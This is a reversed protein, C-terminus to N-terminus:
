YYFFIDDNQKKLKEFFLKKIDHKFTNVSRRLKTEAALNNWTNPGLYSITKQGLCSQRFPLNLKLTAMRTNYRSHSPHFIESMYQPSMKNFFKFINVCICQAVREKTPLWNIKIFEDIGVHARNDLNLCYRICKNQSTQIKKSLRKNLSPYWASCAYDYHPQILANCLLRRLSLTLFKQKRYLFKLRNNVLRLVKTAMSEGSLDNDLICGLYTVKSHQKIEIDGYRLDLDRQNKLQRKTGFLISKTKEEGFHVSLKNDVFWDCLSSFDTNLQEEITNIDKGTYILCTDDAYLLLDSNVAQPMDNVYLLFLLPGLISGQPVGCLLKGPSSFDNGVNVIFCRNTLYSKYWRITSEAFGLCSMKETLIKHDITDFAKQLDILIMGTLSGKEFGNRVRDTLYSLCTDTSYHKRFGSQYTFLIKNEDLFVQTQDHIIREIIKSILPLLSIQQYNKPKTKAEKKYLPKLKAIKCDDPFSSLTISLNILNTIPSALVPAGEKLFKGTLNDIGASKHPNLQQLLKLVSTHAVPEFSFSKGVLNLNEYYKKVADKGYKNPPNPLKKVLDNALNSYFDKFIEANAKPDFSLIGDKELCITSCSSKKSPLGLSKLSKWLEKPKGINENLKGTFFNKKKDKIMRQVKNRAKKYSENDSHLRSKKFKALSKDRREIEENIEADFWDQSNNKVRIEKIPAIEDIVSTVRGTFDSYANNIGKFNSYDPFNIKRLKDLFLTQSYNKLSRTKVYKHVNTKTRTIKRTCYILQHDSLGTDVVGFQSVRDASNTLVHDLLSTSTKTIRTPLTLLQKLGNLSCFEKYRKIGNPTHKQNNILNINLDGLIYVKQADFNDTESIATSLKDLFKSQDPPRYLIGILIPKTKPLLMDLFINEVESSFNGRPNFSIDNRIYCAVGGGHRNRDSRILEYGDINIEEDTVSEDLKSETIGIVAARSKKAIARLEDIKSLLSNINLHILHLGRKNFVKWHDISSSTGFDINTQEDSPADIDEFFDDAFTFQHWINDLHDIPKNQCPRCTLSSGIRPKEFQNCRKHIWLGCKECSNLRKKVPKACM